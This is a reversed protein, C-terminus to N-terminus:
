DNTCSAYKNQKRHKESLPSGVPQIVYWYQEELWRLPTYFFALPLTVFGGLPGLDGLDVTHYYYTCDSTGVGHVIAKTTLRIAAYSSIYAIVSGAVIITILKKNM